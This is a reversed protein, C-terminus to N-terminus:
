RQVKALKGWNDKSEVETLFPFQELVLECCDPESKKDLVKQKGIWAGVDSWNRFDRSDGESPWWYTITHANTKTTGGILM